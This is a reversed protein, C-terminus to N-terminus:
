EYASGKQGPANSNTCDLKHDTAHPCRKNGCKSCVVMWWAHPNCLSCGCDPNKIVEDPHLVYYLRDKVEKAM